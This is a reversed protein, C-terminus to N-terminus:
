AAIGAHRTAQRMLSLVIVIRTFGTMLLLLAPLFSLATLALLAQISVSYTQGGGTAPSTIIAPFQAAQALAANPAIGLVFAACLLFLLSASRATLKSPRM